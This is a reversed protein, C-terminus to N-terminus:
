YSTAKTFLSIKVNQRNIAVNKKMQLFIYIQSPIPPIFLSNWKFNSGFDCQTAIVIMIVDYAKGQSFQSINKDLILGVM